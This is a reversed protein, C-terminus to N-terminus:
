DQVTIRSFQRTIVGWEDRTIAISAAIVGFGIWVIVRFLFDMWFANSLEQFSLWAGLVFFGIVGVIKKFPYNVYLLRKSVLYASVCLSIYAIIGAMVAGEKGALPILFLGCIICVIAALWELITQWKLKKEFYLGPLLILYVGKLVSCLAVGGVVSAAGYFAPAVLLKTVPKAFLFFALCLFSYLAIYYLLVKGFLESAEDRRNIFSIFFAPWAVGFASDSLLTMFMGFSLGLSFIGLETLGSYHEVLARGSYDIFFFAGIGFASPLGLIVVKRILAWSLEPTFRLLFYLVLGFSFLLNVVAGVYLLGILGKEFVIVTIVSVFAICATLSINYLIYAKPRDDMRLQALIPSSITTATMQLFILVVHTSYEEVDFILNSIEKSLLLATSLLIVSSLSVGIVASLVVSNRQKTTDAEFYCIGISNGTGLSSFGVLFVSVLALMAMVGYETPTIYATFFPLLLISVFRSVVGGVGYVLSGNALRRIHDHM